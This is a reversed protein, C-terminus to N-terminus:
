VPIIKVKKVEKNREKEYEVTKKYDKCIESLCLVEMLKLKLTLM